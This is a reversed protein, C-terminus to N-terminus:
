QVFRYLGYLGVVAGGVMIATGPAGGVVAGTVIGALGVVMLAVNKGAGVRAERAAVAEPARTEAAAPAVQAGVALPARMVSPAAEAPQTVAVPAPSSDSPAAQQAGLAPVAAVSALTLLSAGLRRASRILRTM